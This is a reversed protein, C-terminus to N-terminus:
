AEKAVLDGGVLACVLSLLLVQPLLMVVAVEIGFYLGARLIMAALLREVDSAMKYIQIWLMANQALLVDSGL